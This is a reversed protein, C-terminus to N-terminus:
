KEGTTKTDDRALPELGTAPKDRFAKIGKAVTLGDPGAYRKGGLLDAPDAVMAALNSRTACGYNSMASAGAEPNSVRSWDPCGPVTASSHRITVRAVGAPAAAGGDELTVGFDKVIEGVQRRQAATAGAVAVHDGYGVGLAALYGGFSRGQVPDLADGAFRLDYSAESTAVVPAKRPDLSRNAPGCAAVVLCAVTM